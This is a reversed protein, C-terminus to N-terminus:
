SVGRHSCDDEIRRAIGLLSLDPLGLAWVDESNACTAEAPAVHLLDTACRLSRHEAMFDHGLGGLSSADREDM